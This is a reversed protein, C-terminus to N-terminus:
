RVFLVRQVPASSGNIVTRVFYVGRTVTVGADSRGDWTAVQRGATQLGTVLKRIQRGAVDYVTVEVDAGAEQEM